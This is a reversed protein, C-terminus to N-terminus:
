ERICQPSLDLQEPFMQLRASARGGNAGPARGDDRRENMGLNGGDRRRTEQLECRLGRCSIASNALEGYHEREIASHWHNEGQPQASRRV